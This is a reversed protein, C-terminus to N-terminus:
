SQEEMKALEDIYDDMWDPESKPKKKTQQQKQQKEFRTELNQSYLLADETTQVGKNMWDHLVTELYKLNPLVGQKQKLILMLIVNIIGPDVQNRELLQVATSLALGQQDVKAYKAIIVQPTLSTLFAAEPEEKEKITLIQNQSEYYQKAKFNLIQYNINQKSESAKTYVEVMDNVDYQYVFAIRSITEQLKHNLLQSNKLRDPLLEVFRNFDFRYNLHSGGNQQRGQLGYDLKLLNLSKFEYLSDFAKTQNDYGELDPKEKRFMEALKNLNKEGIESQLYSGFVTDTLFQKASLPTKMMYIFDDSKQFTQLLNLAELKHRMGLFASQKINLFDFLEQHTYSGRHTHNVLQYFTIYLGHAEMGLLPQYLLALSKFDGSSLDSQIHIRFTSSNKM